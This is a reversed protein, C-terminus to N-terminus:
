YVESLVQFIYSQISLKVKKLPQGDKVLPTKEIQGLSKCYVPTHSEGKEYSFILSPNEQLAEQTVFIRGIKQSYPTSIEENLIFQTPVEENLQYAFRVGQEKIFDLDGSIEVKIEHTALLSLSYLLSGVFSLFFIRPTM